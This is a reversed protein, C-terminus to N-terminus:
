RRDNNRGPLTPGLALYLIRKAEFRGRSVSDLIIGCLLSIGALLM